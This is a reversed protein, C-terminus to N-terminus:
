SAQRAERVVNRWSLHATVDLVRGGNALEIDIVISRLNNVEGNDIAKARRRVADAAATALTEVLESYPESTAPPAEQVSM